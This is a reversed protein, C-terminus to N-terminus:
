QSLKEMVLLSQHNRISKKEYSLLRCSNSFLSFLYEATNYTSYYVQPADNKGLWSRKYELDTREVALVGKVPNVRNNELFSVVLIGDPQLMNCLSNAWDVQNQQNMHTFVSISYILKFKQNTIVEQPSYPNSWFRENEGPELGSLNSKCWSILSDDVDSGWVNTYGASIFHRLVRGCGCGFEYIPDNKNILLNAKDLSENIKEYIQRGELIFSEALVSGKRVKDRMELPPLDIGNCTLVLSNAQSNPIVAEISKKYIYAYKYRRLLSYFPLWSLLKKAIMIMKFTSWNLRYLVMNM